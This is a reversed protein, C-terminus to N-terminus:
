VSKSQKQNLASLDDRGIGTIDNKYTVNTTANWIVSADAAVYNKPTTQDLTIGYKLASYSDVRQQEVTTLVRDYLMFEQIDGLYRYTSNSRGLFVPQNPFYTTRASTHINNGNWYLNAQNSSSQSASYFHPIHTSEPTPLNDIRSNNGFSEYLTESTWTLHSNSNGGIRWHGTENGNTVNENDQYTVIFGQAETWGSAINGFNFYEDTSVGQISVGPNFNLSNSEFDPTAVTTPVYNNTSQDEWTIVVSSGTVGMDARMWVQLDASVGGPFPATYALTFLDGDNLDIGDFTVKSGMITGGTIVSANSFDGDGDTDVLLEIDYANSSVKDFTITLNSVSGTEAVKWERGLRYKAVAAAPLETTQLDANADDNGWVLFNKDAAFTNTNTINDVAIEGLGITVLADDNVSKSQKQNLASADDRGMGAIDNKYTANTTGNWIITADSALYNVPSTQDLTIGYKLALYSEIRNNNASASSNYLIMEAMDTSASAGLGKIHVGRASGVSITGIKDGNTGSIEKINYVGSATTKSYQLIVWDNITNTVNSAPDNATTITYGYRGTNNYQELRVNENNNAPNNFLRQSNGSGNNNFVAYFSVDLFEEDNGIKQYSGVTNLSPNFNANADNIIVSGGDYNRSNVSADNWNSSTTSPTDARLWLALNATEGGPAPLTYGLTFIDGDDLDVGTFIAEGDIATGGTIITANSFDGDGDTDIYLELNQVIESVNAFSVTLNTVTGTEAVKWERGLRQIAAASAPMETTQLNTSADDNGWILFNKDAAFTNANADNTVAIEGLGITAIVDTHISKSQKQNLASLDDRGIGTIDNNYTANATGNWIVTGDSALYDTAISQDLTTGYKIAFYSNVQQREVTTLVRDFLALEAQQGSWNNFDGRGLYNTADANFNVTNNTSVVQTFGNFGAEFLGAGARVNYTNWDALAFPTSVNVTTAAKADLVAGTGTNWGYRDNNGFNEYISNNDTYNYHANSNGGFSFAHGDSGANSTKAISFVEGAAYGSSISPKSVYDGNDYDIYPNFNLGEVRAPDSTVVTFDNDNGSQDKWGTGNVMNGVPADNARLWLTLNTNVGGPAAQTYGLTFVDNNNLDVGAFTVVGNSVTGGIIV